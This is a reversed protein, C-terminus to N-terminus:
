RSRGRRRRRAAGPAADAAPVNRTDLRIRNPGIVEADAELFDMPREPRPRPAGLVRRASQLEASRVRVHRPHAVGGTSCCGSGIGPQVKMDEHGRGPLEHYRVDYGWRQLMRVAWRSYEVNVAKDADGHPVFIPVNSCRSPRRSRAAGSGAPVARGAHAQALM